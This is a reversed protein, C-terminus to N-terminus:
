YTWFAVQQLNDVVLRWVHEFRNRKPLRFVGHDAQLRSWLTLASTRRRGKTTRTIMAVAAVAIGAYGVGEVIRMAYLAAPSDAMTVGIDGLTLIACGIVLIPKDGFRDVLWGTFIAGLEVVASPISIIWGGQDPSLDFSRTIDGAVPIAQSISAAGLVGIAYILIIAGWSAQGQAENLSVPQNVTAEQLM